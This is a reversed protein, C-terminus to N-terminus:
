QVSRVTVAPVYKKDYGEYSMTTNQLGNQISYTIFITYMTYTCMNYTFMNCLVSFHKVIRM